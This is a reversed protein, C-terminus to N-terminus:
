FDYFLNICIHKTNEEFIFLKENNNSLVLLLWLPLIHALSKPGCEYEDVRM